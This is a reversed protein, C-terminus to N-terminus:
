AKTSMEVGGLFAVAEECGEQWCGEMWELVRLWLELGMQGFPVIDSSMQGMPVSLGKSTDPGLEVAVHTTWFPIEPVRQGGRVGKLEAERPSSAWGLPSQVGQGGM